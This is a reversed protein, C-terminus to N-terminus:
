AGVGARDAGLAVRDGPGSPERRLDAALTGAVESLREDPTLFSPGDIPRM